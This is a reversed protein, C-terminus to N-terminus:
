FVVPVSVAGRRGRFSQQCFRPFCQSQHVGPSQCPPQAPLLRMDADYSRMSLAQEAMDRAPQRKGEERYLHGVDWGRARCLERFLHEQADLSHGDVQSLDSVRLYGAAKM